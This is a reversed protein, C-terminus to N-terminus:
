ELWKIFKKEPSGKIYEEKKYFHLTKKNKSYAYLLIAWIKLKKAKGMKYESLIEEKRAKEKIVKFGMKERIRPVKM